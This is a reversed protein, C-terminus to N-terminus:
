HQERAVDAVAAQTERSFREPRTRGHVQDRVKDVLAELMLNWHRDPICVRHEMGRHWVEAKVSSGTAEYGIWRIGDADIRDFREIQM